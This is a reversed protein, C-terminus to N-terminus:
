ESESRAQADRQARKVDIESMSSALSEAIGVCQASQEDTPATIALYLALTLAEVDNTPETMTAKTNNM